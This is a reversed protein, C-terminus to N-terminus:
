SLLHSSSSCICHSWLHSHIRRRHCHSVLPSPDGRQSGLPGDDGAEEGSPDGQTQVAQASPGPGPDARAPPGPSSSLTGRQCQVTTESGTCGMGATLLQDEWSLVSSRDAGLNQSNNPGPSDLVERIYSFQTEEKTSVAVKRPPTPGGPLLVPCSLQGANYRGAPLMRLDYKRPRGRTM